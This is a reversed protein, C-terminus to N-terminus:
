SPALRFQLGVSTWNIALAGRGKVSMGMAILENKLM